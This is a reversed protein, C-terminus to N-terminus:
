RSNEYEKKRWTCPSVGLHKKFIRNFYGVNDFGCELAIEIIKKNSSLLKEQAQYIRYRNLYDIPTKGTYEKFLRIVYPKSYHTMSCMQALTLKSTYHEHLYVILKQFVLPNEKSTEKKGFLQYDYLMCFINCVLAKIRLERTYSKECFAQYLELLTTIVTNEEPHKPSFVRQFNVSHTFFKSCEAGCLYPHLVIAFFKGEPEATVTHLEGSQILLLEGQHLTVQEGDIICHCVGSTAYLFEYEDHWHYPIDYNTEYVNIQLDGDKHTAYTEKLRTKNM